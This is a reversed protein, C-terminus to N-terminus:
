ANFAERVCRLVRVLEREAFGAAVGITIGSITIEIPARQELKVPLRVMEGDGALSKKKRYYVNACVGKERCFRKANMGSRDQEGFLARWEQDSRYKKM